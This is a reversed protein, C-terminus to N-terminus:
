RFSTDALVELYAGHGLSVPCCLVSEVTNKGSSKKGWEAKNPCKKQIITKQKYLKTEIKIHPKHIYTGTEQNQKKLSSPLFFSCLIPNIPPPYSRSPFSYSWFINYSFFKWNLFYNDLGWGPLFLWFYLPREGRISQVKQGYVRIFLHIYKLSYM